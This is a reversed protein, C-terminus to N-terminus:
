VGIHGNDARNSQLKWLSIDTINMNSHGGCSFIRTERERGKGMEKKDKEGGVCNENTLFNFAGCWSWRVSLLFGAITLFRIAGKNKKCDLNCQVIM